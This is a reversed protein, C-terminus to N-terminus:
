PPFLVILMTVSITAGSFSSASSTHRPDLAHNGASIMSSLRIMLTAQLNKDQHFICVRVCVRSFVCVANLLLKTYGCVCVLVCVCVQFLNFKHWENELQEINHESNIYM